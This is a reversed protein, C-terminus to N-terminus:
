NFPKSFWSPALYNGAVLYDRYLHYGTVSVVCRGADSRELQKAIHEAIYAQGSTKRLVDLFKQFADPGKRPLKSLLFEVKHKTMKEAGMVEFENDSLLKEQLLFNSFTSPDLNDILYFRNSRLLERHIAEMTVANSGASEACTRSQEACM